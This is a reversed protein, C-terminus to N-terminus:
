NTRVSEKINKFLNLVKLPDLLDFKSSEILGAIDKHENMV